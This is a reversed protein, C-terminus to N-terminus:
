INTWKKTVECMYPDLSLINKRLSLAKFRCGVGCFWLHECQKCENNHKVIERIKLNKFNRMKKSEWIEELSQNRINGCVFKPHYIGCSIVKGNCKISCSNHYYDCCYLNLKYKQKKGNFESSRFVNGCELIFSPKEYIWRKIIKKYFNLEEELNLGM